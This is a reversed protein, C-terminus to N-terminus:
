CLCSITSNLIKLGVMGSKEPHFQFGVINDKGIIAAIHANGFNFTSIEHLQDQLTVFYSHTFYVVPDLISDLLSQHEPKTNLTRWGVNPIRLSPGGNLGGVTGPILNLGDHTGFESSNSVLMQMGLCIGIIPVGAEARRQLPEILGLQDLGQMADAFAGVGPLIIQSAENLHKPDDVIRYDRDLHRLAQGISFLNGRGYDIVSIV